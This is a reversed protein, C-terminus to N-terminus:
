TFGALIWGGEGIFHETFHFAAQGIEAWVFALAEDNAIVVISCDAEYYYVFVSIGFLFAECVKGFNLLVHLDEALVNFSVAEIGVEINNM